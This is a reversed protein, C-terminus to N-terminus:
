TSVQYATCLYREALTKSRRSIFFFKKFSYFHIHLKISSLSNKMFYTILKHYEIITLLIRYIFTWGSIKKPFFYHLSPYKKRWVKQLVLSWLLKNTYISVMVIKLQVGQKSLSRLRFNCMQLSPVSKWVGRGGM